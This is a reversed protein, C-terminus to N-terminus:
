EKVEDITEWSSVKTANARRLDDIVARAQAPKGGCAKVAKEIATKSVARKIEIAGGLGQAELIPAAAEADITERSKSVLGLKRGDALTVAGNARIWERARREVEDLYARAPALEALVRAVADASVLPSTVAPVIAQAADRGVPCVGIAPCYDHECWPGPRPERTGNIAANVRDRWDALDFVDRTTSTITATGDDAVCALVCTVEAAGTYAAAALASLALQANTEVPELHEQRGTKWDWVEPTAGPVLCDLTGAIAGNPARDYDRRLGGVLEGATDTTPSYWLAIEPRGRPVWDGFNAAVTSPDDTEWAEAIEADTMPVGRVFSEIVAHRRTGRDAAASTEQEPCDLGTWALCRLALGSKSLTWRRRM